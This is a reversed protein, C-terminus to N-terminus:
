LKQNTGEHTVGFSLYYCHSLTEVIGVSSLLGIDQGVADQLLFATKAGVLGNPLVRRSWNPNTNSSKWASTELM